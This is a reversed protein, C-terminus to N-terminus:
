VSALFAVPILFLIGASFHLCRCEVDSIGFANTRCGVDDDVSISVVDVVSSLVIPGEMRATTASKGLIGPPCPPASALTADVSFIISLKTASV